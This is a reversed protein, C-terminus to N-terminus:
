DAADEAEGSEEAEGEEAVRGEKRGIQERALSFQHLLRERM